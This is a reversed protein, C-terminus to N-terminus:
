PLTLALRFGVDSYSFSYGRFDADRGVRQASRYYRAGIEAYSGGRLVVLSGSVPGTPDTVTGPYDGFYDLCWEWVNGHMDYLGWANPSYSGVTATGGDTGVNADVSFDGPHNDYNRALDDLAVDRNDNTLNHGSNLATTTGARCAYEWQSETPLDFNLGETRAIMRGMFTSPSELLSGRIDWWSRRELPRSDRFSENSFYSPWDGMVREWQKQTVEFVGIYFDKTLTVQHQVEEPFRGLEDTPSGMIFTGAPIRRMVLKTTKYEHTWGGPPVEDLYTVPYNTASPGESLDIILYNTAASPAPPNTVISLVRYLMPVSATIMGSGEAPIFDLATSATAFNTWPGDATPAWEVRYSVANSVRSFKLQGSSEFAEIVVEEQGRSVDPLGVILLLVAVISTKM